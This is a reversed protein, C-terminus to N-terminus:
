LDSNWTLISSAALASSTTEISIPSTTSGLRADQALVVSSHLQGGDVAVLQAAEAAELHQADLGLGVVGLQGSAVSQSQEQGGAFHLGSTEFSHAPAGGVQHSLLGLSHLSVDSQGSQGSLQGVGHGLALVGALVPSQGGSQTIVDQSVLQVVHGVLLQHLNQHVELGGSAGVDGLLKPRM